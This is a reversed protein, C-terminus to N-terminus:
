NIDLLTLFLNTPSLTDISVFLHQDFHHQPFISVELVHLDVDPMNLEVKLNSGNESVALLLEPEPKIAHHKATKFALADRLKETVVDELRSSM